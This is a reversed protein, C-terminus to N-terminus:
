IHKNVETKAMSTTAKNNKAKKIYFALLVAYISWYIDVYKTKKFLFIGYNEKAHIM